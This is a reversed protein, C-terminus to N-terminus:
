AALSPAAKFRMARMAATAAPFARGAPIAASLTLQTPSDVSQVTIGAHWKTGDVADADITTGNAWLFVSDGALVGSTSAVVLTAAGAVADATLALPLNVVCVWREPGGAAPASNAAIDGRAWDWGGTPAATYGRRLRNADAIGLSTNGHYIWKFVQSSSFFNVDYALHGGGAPTNRVDNDRATGGYSFDTFVIGSLDDVESAGNGQNCDVVKNRDVTARLAGALKIGTGAARRVENGSVDPAIIPYTIGSVTNTGTLVIAGGTIPCGDSVNERARLVIKPTSKASMDVVIRGAGVDNQDITVSGENTTLENNVLIAQMQSPGAALGASNVVNGRIKFHALPSKLSARLACLMNAGTALDFLNGNVIANLAQNVYVGVASKQGNGTFGFTNASVTLASCAGDGEYVGYGLGTGANGNDLASYINRFTNGTVVVDDAYFVYVGVPFLSTFSGAAIDNEFHNAGTVVVDQCRGTGDGSLYAHFTYNRSECGLVRVTKCKFFYLGKDHLNGNRYGYSRVKSLTIDTCNRFNCLAFGEVALNEVVLGTLGDAALANHAESGTGAITLGNRIVTARGHGYIRTNGGTINPTATNREVIATGAPIHLSGGAAQGVAQNWASTDDNGRMVGSWDRFDAGIANAFRADIDNDRASNAPLYALRPLTM